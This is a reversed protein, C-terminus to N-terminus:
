KEPNLVPANSGSRRALSFTYSATARTNEELALLLDLVVAFTYMGLGAFGWTAISGFVLVLYDPLQNFRGALLSRFVPNLNILSAVIGIALLVYAIFKYIRIIRPMIALSKRQPIMSDGKGHLWNDLLKELIGIALKQKEPSLKDVIYAAQKAAVSQSEEEVEYGAMLLMASVDMRLADALAKRFEPDDFPINYRGNEWHSISGSTVEIGLLQLRQALGEQTLEVEKRRAKLWSTEM